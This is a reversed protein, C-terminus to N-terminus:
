GKEAVHIEPGETPASISEALIKSMAVYTEKLQRRHSVVLAVITIVLCTFVAWSSAISDGAIIFKFALLMTLAVAMNGYFQSFRYVNNIAEKFASLVNPDRIKGLNIQPLRSVGSKFQIADLVLGRLASVIIGIALAALFIIFTAGVSSDKSLVLNFVQRAWPSIYTLAFVAVFGPLIYAMFLGFDLPSLGGM